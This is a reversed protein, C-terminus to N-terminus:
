RTNTGKLEDRLVVELTWFIQTNTVHRDLGAGLDRAIHSDVHMIMPARVQNYLMTYIRKHKKM